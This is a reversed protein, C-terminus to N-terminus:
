KLIYDFTKIMADRFNVCDKATSNGYTIVIAVHKFRGSKKEEFFVWEESVSMINMRKEINWTTIYGKIGTDTFIPTISHLSEVNEVGIVHNKIYDDLSVNPDKEGSYGGSNAIIQCDGGTFEAGTKTNPFERLIWDNPYKISYGYEENRYTLWDSTDIEGNDVQNTNQNTNVNQNMIQGRNGGNRVVLFSVVALIAIIVLSSIIITIKKNM